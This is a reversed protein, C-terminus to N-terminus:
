RGIGQYLIGSNVFAEKNLCNRGDIVVRVGAHKFNDPTLTKFERHDTAIIVAESGALAEELSQANSKELIHSDYAVVTAGREILEKKIDLAPSERMDPIDRKYALGLLTVVTGALPVNLKELTSELKDVTYKPMGNNIKRATILFQHHFGNEHGYRILYYPDVSICHGGVGCGPFHPMFSFPKTAAGEVVSVLDIGARDFSMAMENVFAINIDRFANEVMKAAEAEKLSPMPRIEADIISRYLELARELSEPGLAGMVRPIKRLTWREDGPNIREPCHALYFDDEGKLGSREELIPLVVRECTAPSITSEVVVLSGPRLHRAVVECAGRVPGLDPLHEHDVPTPVCIIYAAAGDLESENSTFTIRDLKKLSAQEDKTIYDAERKLLSDIRHKDIDFGLVSFGKEAALIALPLGVYGTGIVVIDTRASKAPTKKTGRTVKQPTSM